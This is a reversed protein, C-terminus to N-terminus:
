KCNLEAIKTDASFKHESYTAIGECSAMSIFAVAVAIAVWKDSLWSKDEM